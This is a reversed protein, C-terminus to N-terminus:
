NVVSDVPFYDALIHNQQCSWQPLAGKVKGLFFGGRWPQLGLRLEKLSFEAEVFPVSPQSGLLCSSGQSGFRQRIRCPTRSRCNPGRWNRRLQGSDGHASAGAQRAAALPALSRELPADRRVRDLCCLSVRARRSRRWGGRCDRAGSAPPPLRVQERRVGEEGARDAVQSTLLAQPASLRQAHLLQVLPRGRRQVPHDRHLAAPPVGQRLLLAGGGGGGGGPEAGARTGHAADQVAAPAPDAHLQQVLGPRRGPGGAARPSAARPAPAGGDHQCPPM